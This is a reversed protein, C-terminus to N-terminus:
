IVRPATPLGQAADIRRTLEGLRRTPVGPYRHHEDHQFMHAVLVDLLPSRSTRAAHATGHCGRHVAWIGVMPVAANAALLTLAAVRLAPEDLLLWVAAQVLAIAILEAVIWCRLAASGDRLAAAHIQLPYLPSRWLAQWFGYSAARGELDDAALCRAHHIRHTHLLAHTAGGLVISITLMVVDSGRESLGLTRHVAGHNLRVGIMFVVLTAAVVGLMLGLAGCLVAIALWPLPLLLEFLADRRSVVALDRWPVATHEAV